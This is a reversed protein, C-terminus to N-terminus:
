YQGEAIDQSPLNPASANAPTAAKEKPPLLGEISRTLVYPIVVWALTMAAAAAQQPASTASNLDSSFTMLSFAAIAATVGWCIRVFM